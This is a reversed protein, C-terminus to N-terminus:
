SGPCPSDHTNHSVRSCDQPRCLVKNQSTNAVGNMHKPCGTTKAPLRMSTCYAQVGRTFIQITTDRASTHKLASMNHVKGQQGGCNMKGLAMPWGTVASTLVKRSWARMAGAPMATKKV